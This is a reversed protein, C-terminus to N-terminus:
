IKVSNLLNQEKEMAQHQLQDCQSALEGAVVADTISSLNIRCNLIAGLAATRACMMAVCADTIANQNGKETVTAIYPMISVARQAVSLPVRAAHVLAEQIAHSRIEKDEATEKPLKYANFVKDYAEADDSISQLLYDVADGFIPSLTEMEAQVDLYKKRGMTLGTVMKGLAAALAGLLASVSGGGPVPDKGATITTFDIISINKYDM